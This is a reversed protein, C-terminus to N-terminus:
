RRLLRRSMSLVPQTGQRPSCATPKKAKSAKVIMAIFVPHAPPQTVLRINGINASTRLKAASREPYPGAPQILKLTEAEWHRSFKESGHPTPPVGDGARFDCSDRSDSPLAP